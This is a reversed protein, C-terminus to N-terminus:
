FPHDKSMRIRIAARRRSETESISAFDPTSEGPEPVGRSDCQCLREAADLIALLADLDMHALKTPPEDGLAVITHTAHDPYLQIWALAEREVLDTLQSCVVVLPTGLRLFVRDLDEPEATFVEFRARLTEIAAAIVDRYVVPQNALLVRLGSM